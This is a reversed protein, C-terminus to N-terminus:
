WQKMERSLRVLIREPVQGFAPDGALAEVEAEAVQRGWVRSTMLLFRVYFGKQDAYFSTLADVDDGYFHKFYVLGGPGTLSVEGSDWWDDPKPTEYTYSGHIEIHILLDPKHVAPDVMKLGASTLIRHITEVYLDPGASRGLIEWELGATRATRFEEVKSRSLRKRCGPASALLMLAMLLIGRGVRRQAEAGKGDVWGM